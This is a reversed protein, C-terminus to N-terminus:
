FVMNMINFAHFENSYSLTWHDNETFLKLNAINITFSKESESIKVDVGRKKEVTLYSILLTM